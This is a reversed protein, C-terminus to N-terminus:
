PHTETSARLARLMQVANRNKPNLQLARQYNTIARTKDGGDMYAEALSDYANGSQPYTEANLQLIFIAQKIQEFHILRYGLENLENEDFNYATPASAKADHYQRLAADIGRSAMTAALASAISHRPDFAAKIRPEWMGVTAGLIGAGMAVTLVFLGSAMAIRAAGGAREQTRLYLELVALPLLYVAFGLFTLFPGQFTVPDFGVPGQFIVASLMLGVRFFWVGSVVLFLRLAWRRHTKFDRALAYRWAAAACLMILVANLEVAIHQSFDGVVKRGSLALFLGSAGMVFAIVVYMRGNWRHFVPLRARIQPILQLGGSLTITAALLLHAAVALNGITNGPIYGHFLTRNVRGVDGVVVAGGYVSAIYAVFIWQGIIAVFFWLGAAAKLATNGAQLLSRARPSTQANGLPGHEIAQSMQATPNTM